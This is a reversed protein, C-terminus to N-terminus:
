GENAVEGQEHINGIVECSTNADENDVHVYLPSFDKTRFEGNDWIVPTVDKIEKETEHDFFISNIIDGEFIEKGNKDVMGTWQEIIFREDHLKSVDSGDPLGYANHLTIHGDLGIAIVLAGSGAGLHPKTILEKNKKDWLRFKFERMRNINKWRVFRFPLM